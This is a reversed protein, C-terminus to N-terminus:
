GLDGLVCPSYHFERFRIGFSQQAELGLGRQLTCKLILGKYEPKGSKVQPQWSQSPTEKQMFYANGELAM